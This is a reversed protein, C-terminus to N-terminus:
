RVATHRRRIGHFIEQPNKPRVPYASQGVDAAFSYIALSRVFVLSGAATSCEM